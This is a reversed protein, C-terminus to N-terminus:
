RLRHAAARGRGARRGRRRVDRRPARAREPGGGAPLRLGRLRARSGTSRALELSETVLELREPASQPLWLAVFVIQCADLLLRPDDLRRAMALGEDCLARREDYSAEDFLEHALVLLSRCRLESDTAPLRDLSGRLAGVVTENVEGAPASRWLVGTTTSIAARAVAEPDRMLKGVSIAEEVAGVLEPLRAAWRYEEILAMLVDYREAHGATTDSDLSVLASRLLEAAQDYAYYRRALRRPTSRPM